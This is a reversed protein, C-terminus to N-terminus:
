RVPEPRTLLFLIVGLFLLAAGSMLWFGGIFLYMLGWSLGILLVASVKSRRSIAREQEWDILLRGFAPHAYLWRHLSDSGKAAFWASLILFPVTPLGPVVVGVVALALFLYALLLAPLRTLNNLTM